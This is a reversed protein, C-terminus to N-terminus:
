QGCEVNSHTIVPSFRQQYERSTVFACVMTHQIEANRVPFENVKGLWFLFGGVDADRRLYGAYQAYVFSRNYEADIFARNNIPNTQANDDALRYLVAGRGGQDFLDILKARESTLDVFIDSNIKALLSDVFAPGTLATPYRSLFESRSVFSNALALQKQPQDTGGALQARDHIFVNYSPIKKAEGPNGPDPNALPQDNGFAARNLRYVYAGTQQFELEYFFANSVDVRKVRSM